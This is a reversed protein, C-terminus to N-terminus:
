AEVAEELMPLEFYDRAFEVYTQSSGYLMALMRESGDPANGEPYIANGCRWTEDRVPM